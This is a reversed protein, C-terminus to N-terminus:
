IHYVAANWSLKIVTCHLSKRRVKGGLWALLGQWSDMLPIDTMHSLEQWIGKSFSCKFFMHVNTKSENKCLVCTDDLDHTWQKQHAKTTLRNLVALWSIFSHKLITDLFWILKHWQQKGQRERIWNWTAGTKFKGSASPIWIVSDMAGEKPYLKDPDLKDFLEIQIQVLQPSPAPPWCWYNGSIVVSLKADPPISADRVIRQGYVEILPGSPHWNDHWIDIDKGDGPIHQILKRAPARLNLLKRWGWTADSPMNIAWFSKGKLLYECVWAVWISGATSFLLWIFRLMCVKNWQVLSKLGLGGQKPLCIATWNVKEGKACFTSIGHIVSAILQLGGAFTLYEATWSTLKNTIKEILPRLDKYTLKGTILPVGLYRVPLTGLKFGVRDVLQLIETVSLGCCFIESKNYNVM